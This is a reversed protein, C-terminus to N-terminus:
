PCSVVRFGIYNVRYNPNDYGGRYAVACDSEGRHWSGGRIVRNAGSTPGTPDTATGTSVTNSYRDWCWEFVNGSMDYLQANNAIKGGVTHTASGSNSYYWAYTGLASETNTGAWRDVFSGSTSPTGGGRAAYEWEAETPLRYGNAGPKMRANDAATSTGSTNTSTKLVTTYTTDTYYVPEKGSMESYANCWIVADRWNIYTVPETKAATTPSAGGNGDHGERGANAFTYRNTGRDTHTAWQYVTYWLEYTTEYKAITFPSLIVTRGAIFVGKYNDSSSDYYYASNGTITVSNVADPTILAMDTHPLGVTVAATGSKSTDVTSTATITLSAATENAAVVLVGAASITTGTGGGSLTWTVTQAPDGTGTVVATFTQTGGKGVSVTGPSVTVASVTFSTITVAATGSKSTDVTSTATVTLNTATENAAVTLVGAASITTGEGGGSLAWSVTQAPDGTGTVEATFTATGGKIVSATGPSVTVASVAPVTVAATGSKSTDVTSTATITLSTATENAAVTLVGAASITTGEGGGSLTWRVTQAPDGAGTVEATFTQTGGKAVSVTGPSVTVASVTPVTVAATGSKSTDVTSTATITLSTATENASVALVGAASITTGEGDGSLTWTVTQAPNGTGAVTATFTQTGGKAVSATGPYVTVGSVTAAGSVSVVATGSKSTDVTSTATITLSTATENVAVTLVGASSIATGTGGGSLTWTVTQVPNGTGAVTATFTQTGGKTVNATAPSVTVGTIVTGGPTSGGGGSPNDCATFTLATVLALTGALFVKDKKM